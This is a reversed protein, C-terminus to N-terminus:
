AKKLKVLMKYKEVNLDWDHNTLNTGLSKM